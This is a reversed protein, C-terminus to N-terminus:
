EVMNCNMWVRVCGVLCTLNTHCVFGKVVLVRIIYLAFLCDFIYQNFSNVMLYQHM